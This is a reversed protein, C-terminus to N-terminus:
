GLPKWTKENKHSVRINNGALCAGIQPDDVNIAWEGNDNPTLDKELQSKTYTKDVVGERILCDVVGDYNESYLSPNGVQLQYLANINLVEGFNCAIYDNEYKKQQEDSMSSPDISAVEYVGNSYKTLVPTHYGKDVMCQKFDSWAQEYDETTVTGDDRVREVKERQADSMDGQLLSDAYASLSSAIKGSGTAAGGGDADGADNTSVCGGFLAICLSIGAALCCRRLGSDCGM